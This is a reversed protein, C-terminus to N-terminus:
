VVLQEATGLMPMRPQVAKLKLTKVAQLIQIHDSVVIHLCLSLGETCSDTNV